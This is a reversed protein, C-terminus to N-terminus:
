PRPAAVLDVVTLGSASSTEPLVLRYRFDGIREVLGGADGAPRDGYAPANKAGAPVASGLFVLRNGSKLEWLYGGLRLGRLETALSLQGGEVGVYCFGAPSATWRAPGLRVFRCRYTGPGPAARALGADRVLLAGEAGVRRSLGATRAAALALDWRAALGDLTASDRATAVRRWAEAEEVTVSPRPAGPPPQPVTQCAAVALMALFCVPRLRVM